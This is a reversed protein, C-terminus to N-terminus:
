SKKQTNIYEELIAAASCVCKMCPRAHYFKETRESPTGGVEADKKLIERCVISGNEARFADAMDRIRKYHEAKVPGTEPTAYGCLMGAAMFMGSCAGCVERMRGMGGGFSSSIKMATDFPMDMDECFAGIVAQACNYGDLFLQEAKKVHDM